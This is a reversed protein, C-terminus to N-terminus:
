YERFEKVQMDVPEKCSDAYTELPRDWLECEVEEPEGSGGKWKMQWVYRGIRQYELDEKSDAGELLTKDWEKM